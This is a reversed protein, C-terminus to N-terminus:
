NTEVTVDRSARLCEWSQRQLYFLSWSIDPDRQPRKRVVWERERQREREGPLTSETEMLLLTNQFLKVLRLFALFLLYFLTLVFLWCCQSVGCTSTGFRWGGGSIQVESEGPHCWLPSTVVSLLPLLNFRCGRPPKLKVGSPWQVHSLLNFHKGHQQQHWTSGRAHGINLAIGM